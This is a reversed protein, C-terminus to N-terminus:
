THGKRVDRCALTCGSGEVVPSAQHRAATAGVAISEAQRSVGPGSIQRWDWHQATSKKRQPQDQGVLATLRQTQLTVHNWSRANVRCCVGRINHGSTSNGWKGPCM